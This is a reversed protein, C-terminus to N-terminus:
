RGFLVSYTEMSDVYVAGSLIDDSEVGSGTVRSCSGGLVRYPGGSPLSVSCERIGEVRSRYALEDYAKIVPGHRRFTAILGTM